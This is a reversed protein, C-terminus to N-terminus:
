TLRYVDRNWEYFNNDSQRLPSYKTNNVVSKSLCTWVPWIGDYLLTSIMVWVKWPIYIHFELPIHSLNHNLLHTMGLSCIQKRHETLWSQSTTAITALNFLLMVGSNDTPKSFYNIILWPQPRRYRWFFLEMDYWTKDNLFYGFM